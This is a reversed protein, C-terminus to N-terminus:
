FISLPIIYCRKYTKCIFGTFLETFPNQPLSILGILNFLIQRVRLPDIYITPMQEIKTELQISKKDARYAFMGISEAGLKRFDTPVIVMRMKNAELRSLDLADNVFKM